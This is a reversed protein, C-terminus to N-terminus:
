NTLISCTFLYNMSKFIELRSCANEFPYSIMSKKYSWNSMSALVSNTAGMLGTRSTSRSMFMGTKSPKSVNFFTLSIKSAWLALALSMSPSSEKGVGRGKTRLGNM